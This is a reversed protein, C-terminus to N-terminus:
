FAKTFIQLHTLSMYSYSQGCYLLFFELKFNDLWTM